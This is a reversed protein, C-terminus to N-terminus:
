VKVDGVENFGELVPGWGVFILREEGIQGEGRRVPRQLAVGMIAVCILADVVISGFKQSLM